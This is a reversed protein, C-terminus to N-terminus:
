QLYLPPIEDSSLTQHTSPRCPMEGVVWHLQVIRACRLPTYVCASVRFRWTETSQVTCTDTMRDDSDLTNGSGWDKSSQKQLEQLVGSGSYYKVLAQRVPQRIVRTAALQRRRRGHRRRARRPSTRRRRRLRGHSRGRQSHPPGPPPWRRSWWAACLAPLSALRRASSAPFQTVHFQLHGSQRLEARVAAPWDDATFLSWGRM